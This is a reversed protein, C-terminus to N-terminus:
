SNPKENPENDVCMRRYIENVKHETTLENSLLKHRLWDNIKAFGEAKMQNLIRQKEYHTVRIQVTTKREM